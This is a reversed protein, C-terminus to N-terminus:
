SSAAELDIGKAVSLRSVAVVYESDFPGNDLPRLELRYYPDSAPVAKGNADFGAPDRTMGASVVGNGLGLPFNLGDDQPIFAPTSYTIDGSDVLTEEGDFKQYDKGMYDTSGYEPTGADPSLSVGTGLACGIKVNAIMVGDVVSLTYDTIKGTAVGGPLRPDHITANKRCSLPLGREWRCDFSIAVSRAKYLLRARARCIAAELSWRGRDTAFYARAAPDSVPPTLLSVPKSGLSVWRAFGDDTYSGQSIGFVPPSTGSLGSQVCLQYTTKVNYFYDPIIEVITGALVFV